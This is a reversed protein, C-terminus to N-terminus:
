DGVPEVPWKALLIHTGLSSLVVSRILGRRAGRAREGHATIELAIISKTQQLGRRAGSAM